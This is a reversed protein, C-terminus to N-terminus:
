GGNHSGQDPAINEYVYSFKEAGGINFAPNAPDIDNVLLSEIFIALEMRSNMKAGKSELRKAEQMALDWIDGRATGFSHHKGLEGKPEEGFFLGDRIKATFYPGKDSFKVGGESELSNMSDVVSDLVEKQADSRFYVVICDRRIATGDEYSKPYVKFSFKSGSDLMATQLSSVVDGVQDGYHKPDITIYLRGDPKSYLSAFDDVARYWIFKNM